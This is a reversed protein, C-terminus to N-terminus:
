LWPLLPGRRECWASLDVQDRTGGAPARAFADFGGCPIDHVPPWTTGPIPRNIMVANAVVSGLRQYPRITGDRDAGDGSVAM